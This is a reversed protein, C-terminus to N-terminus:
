LSLETDSPPTSVPRFNVTLNRLTKAANSNIERVLSTNWADKLMPAFSLSALNDHQLTNYILSNVLELRVLKLKASVQMHQFM